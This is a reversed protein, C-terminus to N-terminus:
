ATACTPVKLGLRRRAATHQFMDIKGLTTYINVLRRRAATHQFRRRVPQTPACCPWGGEPPQTNFGNRKKRSRGYHTGAAKPRSHTSVSLAAIGAALLVGAAKPRSHTSVLWAMFPLLCFPWGGEPPQTNFSVILAKNGSKTFALRRRAATHQFKPIPAGNRLIRDLRRRAATHQFQQLCPLVDLDYGLRRRAATHQFKLKAAVRLCHM